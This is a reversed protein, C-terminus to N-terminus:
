IRLSAERDPSLVGGADKMSSPVSPSPRPPTESAMWGAELPSTSACACGEGGILLWLKSRSGLIRQSTPLEGGARPLEYAGLPM